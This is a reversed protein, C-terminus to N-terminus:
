GFFSLPSFHLPTLGLTFWTQCLCGIFLGYLGDSSSLPGRDHGLFQKDSLSLQVKRNTFQRAYPYLSSLNFSGYQLWSYKFAFSGRPCARQCSLCPSVLLVQLDVFAEQPEPWPEKCERGGGGGGQGWHFLPGWGTRPPAGCLCRWEPPPGQTAPQHTATWMEIWDHWKSSVAEDQQAMRKKFFEYSTKQGCLGALSCSRLHGWAVMKGDSFGQLTNQFNSIGVRMKKLLCFVPM